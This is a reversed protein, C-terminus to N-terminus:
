KNISNSTKEKEYWYQNSKYKNKNGRPFKNQYYKDFLTLYRHFIKDYKDNKKLKNNIKSKSKTLKEKLECYSNYNNDKEKIRGNLRNLLNAYLLDINNNRKKNYNKYKGKEKCTIIKYKNTGKIKRKYKKYCYIEDNREKPIFYDNCFQCRSIVKKNLLLQYFTIYCLEKINNFKYIYKKIKPNENSLDFQFTLTPLTIQTLKFKKTNSETSKNMFSNDVLKKIEKLDNIFNDLFKICADKIIRGSKFDKYQQAVQKNIISNETKAKEKIKTNLKNFYDVRIQYLIDEFNYIENLIIPSVDKQIDYKKIDENEKTSEEYKRKQLIDQIDIKLQQFIDFYIPEEFDYDNDYTYATTNSKEKFSTNIIHKKCENLCKILQNFNNMIILLTNGLEYPNKQLQIAEEKLNIENFPKNQNIKEAILGISHTYFEIQFTNTNTEFKYFILNEIYEM